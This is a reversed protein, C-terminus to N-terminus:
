ACSSTKVLILNKTNKVLLKKAMIPFSYDVLRLFSDKTKEDKAIAFSIRCHGTIWVLTICINFIEKQRLMGFASICLSCRMLYSTVIQVLKEM